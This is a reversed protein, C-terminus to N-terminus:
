HSTMVLQDRTVPGAQDRDPDAGTAPLELPAAVDLQAGPAVRVVLVEQLLPQLRAPSLVVEPVVVEGGHVPDPLLQRPPRLRSM